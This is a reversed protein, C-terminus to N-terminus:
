KNQKSEDYLVVDKHPFRNSLTEIMRKQFRKIKRRGWWSDPNALISEDFKRIDNGKDDVQRVRVLHNSEGALGSYTYVKIYMTDDLNAISLKGYYTQPRQAAAAAISSSGIAISYKGPSYRISQRHYDDLIRIVKLVESKNM